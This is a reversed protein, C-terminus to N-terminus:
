LGREGLRRILLLLSDRRVVWVAFYGIGKKCGVGTLDYRQCIHGGVHLCSRFSVLSPPSAGPVSVVRSEVEGTYNQAAQTVPEHQAKRCTGRALSTTMSIINWLRQYHCLSINMGRYMKVYYFLM